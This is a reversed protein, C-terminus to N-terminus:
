QRRKKFKDCSEDAPRQIEHGRRCRGVWEGCFQCVADRGLDDSRPEPVSAYFKRVWWPKGM